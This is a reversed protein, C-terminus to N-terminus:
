LPRSVCSYITRYSMFLFDVVRANLNVRTPDSTAPASAIYM